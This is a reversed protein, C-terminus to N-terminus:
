STLLKQFREHRAVETENPLTAQLLENIIRDPSYGEAEASYNTVIRHRLVPRALDRIDDAAVHHRGRLVALAKGGLLLAQVARPGAGWTLMKKIFAPADEENPRTARVLDLAHRIIDPAAPVRRVLRQFSLIEEAGFVHEVTPLEGLTTREAIDYEQEYSPYGVFVKFM